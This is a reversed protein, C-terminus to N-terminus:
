VSAVPTSAPWFKRSPAVMSPALTSTSRPGSSTVAVTVPSTAWTTGPTWKRTVATSTTGTSRNMGSFSGHGLDARSGAGPAGVVPSRGRDLRGDDGGGDDGQQ